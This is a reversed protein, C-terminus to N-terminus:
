DCNTASWTTSLLGDPTLKATASSRAFAKAGRRRANVVAWRRCRHRVERGERGGTGPSRYAHVQSCLEPQRRYQDSVREAHLLDDSSLRTGLYCAAEISRSALFGTPETGFALLGAVTPRDVGDEARRTVHTNRLLDLWPITLSRGFFAELRNRDLDEVGASRYRSSTSVYGRGHQQFLRALERQRLTGSPRGSEDTTADAPPEICTCGEPFRPWSFM